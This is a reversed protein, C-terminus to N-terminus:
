CLQCKFKSLHRVQETHSTFAAAYPGSDPFDKYAQFPELLTKETNANLAYLTLLLKVVSSQGDPGLQVGQPTIVCTEGFAQFVFRDKEKRAPLTDALDAPM